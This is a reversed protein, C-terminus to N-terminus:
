RLNSTRGPASAEAQQSHQPAGRDRAGGDAMAYRPHCGAGCLAWRGIIGVLALARAAHRHTRANIARVFCRKPWGGGMPRALFATSGYQQPEQEAGEGSTGAETEALSRARGQTSIHRFRATASGPVRAAVTDSAAARKAAEIGSVASLGGGGGDCDGGGGV